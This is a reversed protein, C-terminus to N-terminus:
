DSSARQNPPLLKLFLRLSPKILKELNLMVTIGTWLLITLLIRQRMGFSITSCVLSVMQGLPNLLELNIPLWLSKRRQSLLWWDRM